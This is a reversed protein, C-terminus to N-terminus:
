KKGKGKSKTKSKKGKSGGAAPGPLINTTVPGPVINTTVPGPVVQQVPAPSNFVQGNPLPSPTVSQQSVTVPAPLVASSSVNAKFFATFKGHESVINKNILKLLKGSNVPDNQSLAQLQAVNEAVSTNNKLIAVSTDYLITLMTNIENDYKASVKANLGPQALQTRKAILDKNVSEFYKNKKDSDNVLTVITKIVALSQTYNNKINGLAFALPSEYLTNASSGMSSKFEANFGKRKTLLTNNNAINVPTYKSNNVNYNKYSFPDKVANYGKTYANTASSTSAFTKTFWDAM